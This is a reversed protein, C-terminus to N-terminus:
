LSTARAPGKQTDGLRQRNIYLQLRAKMGIAAGTDGREEASLPHVPAGDLSDAPVSFSIAGRGGLTRQSSSSYSTSSGHAGAQPHSGTGQLMAGASPVNPVDADHSSQVTASDPAFKYMPLPELLREIQATRSSRVARAMNKVIWPHELLTSAPPRKRAKKTLVTRFWKDLVTVCWVM